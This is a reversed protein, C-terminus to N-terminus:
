QDRQGRGVSSGVRSRRVCSDIDMALTPNLADIEFHLELADEGNQGSAKAKDRGGLRDVNDRDGTVHVDCGGRGRGHGLGDGDGLAVRGVSSAGTVQGLGVRGGVGGRGPEVVRGAPGNGGAGALRGNDLGREDGGNCGGLGCGGAWEGGASGVTEEQLGAEEETNDTSTHREDCLARKRGRECTRLRGVGRFREHCAKSLVYRRLADVRVFEDSVGSPM